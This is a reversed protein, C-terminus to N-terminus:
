RKYNLKQIIQNKRCFIHKKINYRHLIERAILASIIVAMGSLLQKIIFFEKRATANISKGLIDNYSIGAFAGSFSFITMLLIIIGVMYSGHINESSALMYSLLLLSAVRLYIGILLYKKTRERHSLFFGFLLQMFQSGGVMLATLIGLYFATGGASVLMTPIVTNVDVFNKTLALFISHWVFSNFNRKSYNTM